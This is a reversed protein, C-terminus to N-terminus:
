PKANSGIANALHEVSRPIIVSGHQLIRVANKKAVDNLAKECRNLLQLLFPEKEKYWYAYWFTETFECHNLPLDFGDAFARHLESLVRENRSNVVVRFVIEYGIDGFDSSIKDLYYRGGAKLESGFVKGCCSSCHTLGTIREGKNGM